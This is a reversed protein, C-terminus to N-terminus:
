EFYKLFEKFFVNLKIGVCVSLNCKKKVPSLNFTTLILFVNFFVDLFALLYTAYHFNFYKITYFQYFFFVTKKKESSCM